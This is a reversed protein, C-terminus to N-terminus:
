LLEKKMLKIHRKLGKKVRKPVTNYFTKIHKIKTKIYVIRAEELTEFYGLHIDKRNISIRSRFKNKNRGKVKYVGQPLNNNVSSSGGFFSNLSSSVFCCTEPSYYKNNPYLIDKDLDKDKWDQKKMWKRFNSFTLWEKCVTSETYSPRTKKFKINYARTLMGNWIKYYPCPKNKGQVEYDVDNVGIGYVLRLGSGIIKLFVHRTATIDALADHNGPTVRYEKCITTLKFNEPDIKGKYWETRALILPDIIRYDIYAHLYQYNHQNAWAKLFSIDFHGNYAIVILKDNKNYKDVKNDLFAIFNDFVIKSNPFKKIEKKTLGNIELAEEDLVSSTLPAIYSTFTDAVIGDEEYICAIQLIPNIKPDLGGTEVDVYLVKKM